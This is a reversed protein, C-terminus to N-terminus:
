PSPEPAGPGENNQVAAKRAPDGLQAMYKAVSTRGVDIGLKLLTRQLVNIQQRLVLIEAELKARPRFLDGLGWWLEADIDPPRTYGLIHRLEAIGGSLGGDM